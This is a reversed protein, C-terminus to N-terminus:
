TPWYFTGRKVIKGTHVLTQLRQFMSSPAYGFERALHSLTPPRGHQFKYQKIAKMIDLHVADVLPGMNRKKVPMGLAKELPMGRSLRTFLTTYPINNERALRAIRGDRNAPPKSTAEELSQGAYMRTIVTAPKLGAQEAAAHIEDVSCPLKRNESKVGM